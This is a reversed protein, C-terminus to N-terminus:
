LAAVCRLPQWLAASLDSFGDAAVDEWVTTSLAVRFLFRRLCLAQILDFLFMDYLLLFDLIM